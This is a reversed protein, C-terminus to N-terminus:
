PGGKVDSRQGKVGGLRRSRQGARLGRGWRRSGVKFSRGSKVRPGAGRGATVDGFPPPALATIPRKGILGKKTIPAERKAGGGRAPRGEGKM